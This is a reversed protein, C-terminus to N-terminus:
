CYEKEKKVQMIGINCNNTNLITFSLIYKNTLLILLGVTGLSIIIEHRDTSLPFGQSTIRNRGYSM